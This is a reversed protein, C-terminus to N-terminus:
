KIVLNAFFNKLVLEFSCTVFKYSPDKLLSELAADLTKQSLDKLPIRILIGKTKLSDVNRHQDCFLPIGIMPVGYHLAEIIGGNGGHSM